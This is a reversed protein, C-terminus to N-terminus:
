QQLAKEINVEIERESDAGDMVGVVRGWRNVFFSEPLDRLGGYAQATAHNCELIPYSVGYKQLLANIKETPADDTVIGLVEFGQGRYMERLQALWPMELKCNGCWTAWFNIILAKSRYDSLSVKKGDLSTVFFDPAPKGILRGPGASKTEPASPQAISARDWASWFLALLLVTAQLAPVTRARRGLNRSPTM